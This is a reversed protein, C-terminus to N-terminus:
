RCGNASRRALPSAVQLRNCIVKGVTYYAAPTISLGFPMVLFEYSGYRCRFTTKLQHSGSFQELLLKTLAPSLQHTLEFIYDGTTM